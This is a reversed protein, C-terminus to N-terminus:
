LASASRWPSSAIYSSNSLCKFYDTFSKEFHLDGDVDDQYKLEHLPPM